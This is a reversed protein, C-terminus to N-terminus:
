SRLLFVRQTGLEQGVVHQRPGWFGRYLNEATLSASRPWPISPGHAISIHKITRSRESDDRGANGIKSVPQSVEIRGIRESTDGFSASVAVTM